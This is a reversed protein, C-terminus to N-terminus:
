DLAGDDNERELTADAVHVHLTASPTLPGKGLGLERAIPHSAHEVLEITHRSRPRRLSLEGLSMRARTVEQFAARSPLRGDRLQRLSFFRASPRGLLARIFRGIRSLPSWEPLPGPGGLARLMRDAVDSPRLLGAHSADEGSRRIRVLPELVVPSDPALRSVVMTQMTMDDLSAPATVPEFVALQKAMGLVERGAIVSLPQDVFVWPAFFGVDVPRSRTGGWGNWRVVPVLFSLSTEAGTGYQSWPPDSSTNGAIHGSQLLVWKGLAQFPRTGAGPNLLRDVLSQMRAPDAELAFQFLTIDKQQYAPPYVPMGPYDVFVPATWAAPAPASAPAHMDALARLVARGAELGSMTAGEACGLNLTSRTWDGALFLNAYGSRDPALRYKTSSALSLVYREDHNVNARPYLDAFAGPDYTPGLWGCIGEQWLALWERAEREVTATQQRPYSDDPHAPEAPDDKMATSFYIVGGPASEKPWDEFPLTQYMDAVSNFDNEYVDTMIRRESQWSAQAATATLWVQFSKTRITKVRDVMNKWDRSADVLEGCIEALAGVPIALVVHDFGDEDGRGLVRKRAPPHTCWDSELDFGELQEGDVLQEYRPKSPWCALGKITVLPDYSGNKVIAQEAIEITDITRRDPGLGLKTVKHFFRFRLSGSRGSQKDADEGRRKLAEYIPAFVVDGMSARMKWMFAGKYTFGMLLVTRLAVGASLNPRDFSGGPYCFSANYLGTLFQSRLLRESAGHKALWARLDLADFREDDLEALSLPVGDRLLGLVMIFAFQAADFLVERRYDADATHGEVDDFLDIGTLTELRARVDNWISAAVDSPGVRWLRELDTLEEEMTEIVREFRRKVDAHERLVDRVQRIYRAVLGPVTMDTTWEGEGPKASNEPFHMQYRRWQGNKRDIFYVSSLKEFADEVTRIPGSKRDAEDYCARLMSFANDYFGWFCHLGHEEIRGHRGRGSAGKGGLRWGKQYITVEYREFWRPQSTLEYAAAMAGLGGGLIAIKTRRPRQASHSQESM